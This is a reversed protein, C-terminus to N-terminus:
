GYGHGYGYGYGYGYGPSRLPTPPLRGLSFRRPTFAEPRLGAAREFPGPPLSAPAGRYGRGWGGEQGGHDADNGGCGLHDAHNARRRGEEPRMNM